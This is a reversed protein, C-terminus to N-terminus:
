FTGSQQVKVTGMQVTLRDNEKDWQTGLIKTETPKVGLQQKTATQEENVEKSDSDGELESANSTWKHLLFTADGLIDTAESKRQKGIAEEVTSGGSICDDVYLSKKLADVAELAKSKWHDLHAELVGGLVLPSSVLGFLVRTFRLVEVDTEPSARWHFRLADRECEKVYTQLFAKEVDATIAVPFSRARVLIEWLNNQLPPGAYLCDNLSPCEPSDKASADYLGRLKKSKASERVVEKHPIYFEKGTAKNNAPEVNGQQKQEGIVTNYDEVLNKRQLHHELSRLLRISGIKNTPLPPHSGRWPLGTEYWGSPSRTLQEKFENYVMSQDHEATDALGLVDLRCLDEYDKQSTQTLLM